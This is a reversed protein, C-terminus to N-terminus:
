ISGDANKKVKFVWKSCIIKQKVPRPVLNWTKMSLLSVMEENVAKLWLHKNPSCLMQKWTKPEVIESDDARKAWSGLRDPAKTTCSSRRPAITAPPDVQRRCPILQPPPVPPGPPSTPPLPPPTVDNDSDPLPVLAAHRRNSPAHMSDELRHETPTVFVPSPQSSPAPPTPAPLSSTWQIEVPIPAEPTTVLSSTYPFVSEVFMVDRSNVVCKKELDWLHYGAGHSIYSLLISARGKPDLKKRSAEPVKYWVLCGFPRLYAPNILPCNNIRNPSNFGSPTHCPVSNFSFMIHRLADAWFSKPTKSSALLCRVKEGLTGKAREAVGNLEPSHPPGLKHNVGEKMLYACFGENM